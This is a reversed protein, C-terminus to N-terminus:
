EKEQRRSVESPNTTFADVINHMAHGSIGNDTGWKIVENVLAAFTAIKSDLREHYITISSGVLDAHTKKKVINM